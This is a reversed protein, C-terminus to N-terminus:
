YGRRLIQYSANNQRYRLKGINCLPSSTSLVYRITDAKMQTCATKEMYDPLRSIPLFIFPTM